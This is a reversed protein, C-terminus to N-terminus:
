QQRLRRLTAKGRSELLLTSMHEMEFLRIVCLVYQRKNHRTLALSTEKIVSILVPLEVPMEENIFHGSAFGFSLEVAGTSGESCSPKERRLIV